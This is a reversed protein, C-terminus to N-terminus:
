KQPQQPEPLVRIVETTPNEGTSVTGTLGNCHVTSKEVIIDGKGDSSINTVFPGATTCGTLTVIAMVLIGTGAIQITRKM